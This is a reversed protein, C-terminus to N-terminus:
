NNPAPSDPSTNTSGAPPTLLQGSPRGTPTPMPAPKIALGNVVQTVGDVQRTIEEARRSQDQSNVFGSLQVIGGYTKVDVADFKYQPEGKLKTEVAKTINKDDVVRGDSREDHPKSSTSMSTSCGVLSAVAIVASIRGIVILHKINQM